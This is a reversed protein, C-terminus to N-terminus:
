RPTALGLAALIVAVMAVSAKEWNDFRPGLWYRLLAGFFLLGSGWLGGVAAAVSFGSNSLFGFGLGITLWPLIGGLIVTTGTVPNKFRDAAVARIALLTIAAATIFIPVHEPKM